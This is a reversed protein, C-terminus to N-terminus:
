RKLSGRRAIKATRPLSLPSRARRDVAVALREPDIRYSKSNAVIHEVARDLDERAADMAKPLMAGSGLDRLLRYDVDFAAYGKDSLHRALEGTYGGKAGGTFGGGHLLVIAPAQGRSAPLYSDLRLSKRGVKAYEVNSKLVQSGHKLDKQATARRCAFALISMVTLIAKRRDM